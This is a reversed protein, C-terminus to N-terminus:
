DINDLSACDIDQLSLRGLYLESIHDPCLPACKRHLSDHIAGMLPVWRQEDLPDVNLYRQLLEIRYFVTDTRDCFHAVCRQCPEDSALRILVMSLAGDVPKPDSLWKDGMMKVEKESPFLIVESGDDSSLKLDKTFHRMTERKTAEHKEALTLICSFRLHYSVIIKVKRFNNCCCFFDLFRRGVGAYWKIIDEDDLVTLFSLPRPRGMHNTFGVLRIARRILDLPADVKFCRRALDQITKQAYKQEEEEERIRAERELEKKAKTPKLYKDVQRQFNDYADVLERPLQDRIRPLSLFDGSSLKRHWEWRDDEVSTLYETVVEDAWTRFIQRVENEISFNFKFGNSQKQKKFVHKLLKMGLKKRNRERANKLEMLRVEKQRLYKKRARKAKETMPPRIVSPAVARLEMGMFLIKESVASHIVTRQRDVKLHLIQELFKVIRNKLDMTFTKTGSTMILIEDLYRVAYIKLPKYFVSGSNSDELVLENEHFKPNSKNMELRFEQIEKDFSHFYINILISTLTCEQPLGRGFVPCSLDFSIVRCVYFTRILDLLADDEIKEGLISCLKEVQKSGFFENNDFAVSFLWTPNEISNKLYRVATHRGLNPRGGYAFTVFRDDYIAELVLRFAELVVKLKLNPVVLPTGTPSHPHLHVCCSEVDLSNTALQSSLEEISFFNASVSGSTLTPSDPFHRRLNNCATLLVSPSAVVNQLIGHFKANQYQSLVLSQLSPKELPQAELLAHQERRRLLFRSSLAAAIAPNPRRVAVSLLM